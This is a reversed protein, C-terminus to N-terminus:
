NNAVEMGANDATLLDQAAEVEFDFFASDM